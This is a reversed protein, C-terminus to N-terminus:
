IPDGSGQIAEEIEEKRALDRVKVVGRALEDGGILYVREAGAKDADGLVRKLKSKGLCLEVRRGARRLRRAVTIAAPKEEPGFAYVIDQVDPKLDPWLGEDELLEGIVVDGFGFGVAPVPKGGLTEALRDYRGGGAIARLTGGADFAEFVVGTYYALGRVVSADFPVHDAIGYAELLTYLRRLEAIAPSDTAAFRAAEDLSRAGLIEIVRAAEEASLGVGGQADCLQETVAEAGIKDIKDIVVCLPEFVEPRGSLVGERLSEELLARSNLRIGVKGRALGLGDLMTFMASLLEAEAEVGSEGWIDMNWQYHERKRGRTMREYRWNQTVTFWRIPFRMAGQRAIVMRAISPTMEARLALERDHLEFHYLQDVIEEGAKRKFLELHEVMPADVEEFGFSAATKRFQAFLWNRRRMDDPYFDRTGRPPQLSHGGRGGKDSGKGKSVPM